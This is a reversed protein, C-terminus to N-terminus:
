PCPLEARSKVDLELSMRAGLMSTNSLLIAALPPVLVSRGLTSNEPLLTVKSRATTWSFPCSEKLRTATHLVERETVGPEIVESSM